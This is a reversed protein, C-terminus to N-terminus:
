KIIGVKKCFAYGVDTLYCENADGVDQVLGMRSLENIRTFSANTRISDSKSSYQKLVNLHDETCEVKFVLEM